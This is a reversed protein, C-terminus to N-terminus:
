DELVGYSDLMFRVVDIMLKEARMKLELPISIIKDYTEGKLTFPKRRCFCFAAPTPLSFAELTFYGDYGSDILGKIVADFCLNGSYPQLHLDSNGDNDHVHIAKLGDGMAMISQYQDDKQVNAHGTDWCCGFLPHNDMCRRIENFDEGNYIYYNSCNATCTNETYVMVGCKEATKLLEKYFDTNVEQFESRTMGNKTLAHVTIGKIGLLGCIEIQRRLIDMTAKYNEAEKFDGNSGHAQVFSLGLRKGAEHVDDVWKRWSDTRLPSDNRFASSLSLDIYKIGCESMLELIRPVDHGPAYGFFDETTSAIKM